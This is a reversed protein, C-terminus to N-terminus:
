WGDRSFIQGYTAVGARKNILQVKTGLPASDDIPIWHYSRDITADGGHSTEQM